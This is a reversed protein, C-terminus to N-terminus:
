VVTLYNKNKNVELPTKIMVFSEACVKTQKPRTKKKLYAAANKKTKKPVQALALLLILRSLLVGIKADSIPSLHTPASRHTATISSTLFINLCVWVVFVKACACVCVCVYTYIRMRVSVCVFVCLRVWQTITVICIHVYERANQPVSTAESM